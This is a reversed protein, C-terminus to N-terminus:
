AAAGVPTGDPVTQLEVYALLGERGGERGLGSSLMGGFPTPAAPGTGTNHGCHGFHLGAILREVRARDQGFVYAALGYETANAAALAEADTAFRILPVLPGFTEFHCCKMDQTVGTIVTPPFLLSKASDLGAPEGGTAVRAGKRLADALHDKVKDFGARDVLPGIEVGEDMGNGVKLAKVRDVVRRAFADYVGDQVYVRNACVCTQGAGRFKNAMLGDAAADLNADDLVIFPANGGLELDLKKVRPAAQTMLLRGVETSGTFSVMTTDASEMLAGGIAPADGTVLNVAGRPLHLRAVMLQFLALMTLPTQEAPKVVCPCGAALAPALKKAIMAIPFNWPTILGVVGIPRRHVTWTCDKVKYALREPALVGEMTQAYYDFFSAAYEVEAQAEAWPKGHELCLIRGIEPKEARLADRIAEMWGRRERVDPMTALAAKGAAIARRTEAAGMQPVQALLEGTAPNTVAFMQGADASVWGGDIYGQLHELLASKIM